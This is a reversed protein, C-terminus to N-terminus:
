MAYFQYTASYRMRALAGVHTADCGQTPAVGGKTDVRRIYAATSSAGSGAHSKVRLLLWDIAGKTPAPQKAAAEGTVATGDDLTWTPGKGHIGIQRGQSDFLAAEPAIFVWAPRGEKAECSYIQVGDASVELIQRAGSPPAVSDGAMAAACFTWTLIIFISQRM